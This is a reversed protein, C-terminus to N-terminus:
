TPGGAGVLLTGLQGSRDLPHVGLAATLGVALATGSTSGVARLRGLAPQVGGCSLARLFDAAQPVVQGAAACSLLAASLATTADRARSLLRGVAVPSPGGGSLACAALAGAVVDDGAPTLGPGAGLLEGALEGDGRALAEAAAWARRPDLGVDSENLSLLLRAVDALVPASVARLPRPRPDFWRLPHWVHAAVRLVGGGVVAGDLSGDPLPDASVVAIPLRVSSAPLLAVVRPAAAGVADTFCLYLGARSSGLVHGTRTEGGVAQSVATSM